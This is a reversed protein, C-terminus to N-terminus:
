FSSGRGEIVSVGAKGLRIPESELIAGLNTCKSDNGLRERGWLKM